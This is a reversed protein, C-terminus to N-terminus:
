STHNASIHEKITTLFSHSLRTLKSEPKWILKVHISKLAKLPKFSIDTMAYYEPKDLTLATGIGAKVMAIMNYNMDYYGTVRAGAVYNSLYKKLDSIVDLQQPLILNRHRLDAAVFDSKGVLPDDSRIVAGWHNEYPLELFEYRSLNDNTWVVGFDLLGMDIDRFIKDAALTQYDLVVDPNQEILPRIASLILDNVSGEGIGIRITGSLSQGAHIKKETDNALQVIEKARQYLFDGDETLSIERRGREFLTVGLRDEMDMIQRSLTSQSIHLAEAARTISKHNVISIYYELVRIEMIINMGKM